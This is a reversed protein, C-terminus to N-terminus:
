HKRFKAFLWKRKIYLVIGAVVIIGAAIVPYFSSIGGGSSGSFLSAGAINGGTRGVGGTGGAGVSTSGSTRSASRNGGTGLDSGLNLKKTVSYDNGVADKWRMVLPVSTLDQCTFTVEFSGADDSSLSGIAYEAYTGMAQAPSGVTVTLGKADTIGTNTIDGTMSYYSGKTTLVVNNVIPVAATKDNGIIVPLIVDTSHDTDGSQYSINFALNTTQSPTVTFPIEVSSQAALSSLYKEAPSIKIGSGSATIHINDIQGDRPNIISLNVTKEIALPFVQPADSISAKINTPDVKILLPYHFIGTDKTEVSFIGFHNGKPPPATVLFSYTITSGSSIYSTTKWTDKGTVVVSQSLINPNSLGISATGSNGLTISITGQEYPYLVAPDMTVSSVYLMSTNSAASVVPIVSLLLLVLFISIIASNKKMNEGNNASLYNAPNRVKKKTRSGKKRQ